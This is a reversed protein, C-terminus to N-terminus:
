ITSNCPKLKKWSNSNIGAMGAESPCSIGSLIKWSQVYESKELILALDKFGNITSVMLNLYNIEPGISTVAEIHIFM